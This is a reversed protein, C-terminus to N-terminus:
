LVFSHYDSPLASCLIAFGINFGGHDNKVTKSGQLEFM